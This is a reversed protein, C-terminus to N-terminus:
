LDSCNELTEPLQELIEPGFGLKEAAAIIEPDDLACLHGDDLVLEGDATVTAQQIYGRFWTKSYAPGGYQTSNGTGLNLIRPNSGGRGDPSQAKPHIGWMCKGLWGSNEDGNAAWRDRLWESCDGQMDVVKHKEFTMVLPDDLHVKPAPIQSPIAEIALTGEAPPGPYFNFAGGPFAKKHGPQDLNYPYFYGGITEPAATMTLDTGAPTTLRITKGVIQKVVHDGIMALLELPFLSYDSGMAEPTSAENHLYFIGEDYVAKRLYLNELTRLFEGTSILVDIGRLAEVFVTPPEDGVKRWHDTRMVAVQAGRESLAEWIADVLVPATTKEAHVLVRQGREIRANRALNRAGELVRQPDVETM